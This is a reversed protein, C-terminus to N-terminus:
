NIKGKQTETAKYSLLISIIDKKILGKLETTTTRISITQVLM